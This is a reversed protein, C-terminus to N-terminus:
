HARPTPITVPALQLPLPLVLPITLAVRWWFKPWSSAYRLTAYRLTILLTFTFTFRLINYLRVYPYPVVGSSVLRSSLFLPRPIYPMHLLVHTDLKSRGVFPDAYAAGIYLVICPLALCCM